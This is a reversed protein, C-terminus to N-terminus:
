CNQIINDVIVVTYSQAQICSDLGFLKARSQRYGARVGAVEVEAYLGKDVINATGVM